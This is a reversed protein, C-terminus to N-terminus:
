ECVNKVFNKKKQGIKKKILWGIDFINCLFVFSCQSYCCTNSLVSEKKKKKLVVVVFFFVIKGQLPPFFLNLRFISTSITLM